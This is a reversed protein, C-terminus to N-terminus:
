EGIIRSLIKQTHKLNRKILDMDEGNSVLMGLNENKMIFDQIADICCFLNAVDDGVFGQLFSDFLKVKDKNM